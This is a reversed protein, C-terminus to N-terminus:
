LPNPEAGIREGLTIAAAMVAFFLAFVGYSVHGFYLDPYGVKVSSLGSMVLIMSMQITACYWYFRASNARPRRLAFAVGLLMGIAPIVYRAYPLVTELETVKGGQTTLPTFGAPDYLWFPITVLLAAAATAALYKLAARWGASDALAFTLLPMLFLFNSRSSLGIGLFAASAFKKWLPANEDPVFRMMLWLGILVYIANSTRDTATALNQWVAPSLIVVAVFLTLAILCKSINRRLVAYFAVLWAVNQMPLSKLLVFPVSLLVAGPMPAIPNGLYTRPYFPYRGHILENAALWLADDADSGGGFRGSNALPYVIMVGVVMALVFAFFLWKVVRTNKVSELRPLAAYLAFIVAFVVIAYAAVGAWGLYKFPVDLSALTILGAFAGVQM